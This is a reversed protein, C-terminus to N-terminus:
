NQLNEMIKMMIQPLMQSMVEPLMSKLQNTLNLIQTGPPAQNVIRSQFDPNQNTLVSRQTMEHIFWCRDSPRNCQNQQFKKCLIRDNHTNKRHIMMEAYTNFDRGCQFCRVMGEPIHKHSYVCRGAYDCNPFNICPKHSPHIEKRHDWMEITTHFKEECFKCCINAIENDQINRTEPTNEDTQLEQWDERLMRHMERMHIRLQTKSTFDQACIKCKLDNSTKHTEKHRKLENETEFEIGCPECIFDQVKVTYSHKLQSTHNKLITITNTQFSCDECKFIGEEKHSKLHIEIAMEHINRQDCIKCTYTKNTKANGDPFNLSSIPSKAEVNSLPSTRTHGSSKFRFLIKEESEPEDEEMQEEEIHEKEKLELKSNTVEVVKRLLKVDNKLEENEKLLSKIMKEDHEYKTEASKVIEEYKKLGLDKNQIIEKLEILQRNMQDINQKMVRKESDDKTDEDDKLRKLRQRLDEDEAEELEEEMQHNRRIHYRMEYETIDKEDCLLCSKNKNSAQKKIIQNENLLDEVIDANNGLYNIKQHLEENQEELNQIIESQGILIHEQETNKKELNSMSTNEDIEIIDLKVEEETEIKRAKSPPSNIAASSRNSNSRSLNHIIIEATTKTEKGHKRKVHEPLYKKNKTKFECQDCKHKAGGVTIPRRKIEFPTGNPPLKSRGLKHKNKRHQDHVRFDTTQSKCIDCEYVREYYSEKKMKKRKLRKPKEEEDDTITKNHDDMSKEPNKIDPNIEHVAALAASLESTLKLADKDDSTLKDHNIEMHENWEWETEYKEKCRSCNYPQIVKNQVVEQVLEQVVEQIEKLKTSDEIEKIDEQTEEKKKSDDETKKQTEDKKQSEEKAQTCKRLHNLWEEEGEFKIKCATCSM